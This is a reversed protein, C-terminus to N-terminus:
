ERSALRVGEFVIDQGRWVTSNAVVSLVSVRPLFRHLLQSEAEAVTQKRWREMGRWGSGWQAERRARPQVLIDWWAPGGM